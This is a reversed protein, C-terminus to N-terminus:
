AQPLHHSGMRQKSSPRPLLLLLRGQLPLRGGVGPQLCPSGMRPRQLRLPLHMRDALVPLEEVQPLLLLLLLTLHHLL